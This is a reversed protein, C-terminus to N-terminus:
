RSLFAWSLSMSVIGAILVAAVLIAALRHEPSRDPGRLPNPAQLDREVSPVALQIRELLDDLIAEPRSTPFRVYGVGCDPSLATVSDQVLLIVRNLGIKGQLIGAERLIRQLPRVGNESDKEDPERVVLIAVDLDDVLEQVAHDTSHTGVAISAMETM